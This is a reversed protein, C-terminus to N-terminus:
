FNLLKSSVFIQDGPLVPLDKEKRGKEWIEIVDIYQTEMAHTASNQRMVKIRRRDAFEAFGGAKLIAASVTLTEEEVLELPGPNRVQGTLFARGISKKRLSDIGMRVTARHYYDKELLGTIERAVERCTRRAARIRGVYPVEIEGTDTVTLRRAEERDEEIRFSLVDGPSLLM